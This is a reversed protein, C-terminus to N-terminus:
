SQKERLPIGSKDFNKRLAAETLVISLFLAALQLAELILSVAAPHRYFLLSVGLSLLLLLSGIIRMSRAFYQQAFEWAAQTSQARATRYGYVANPKKPPHRRFLLGIGLLLLPLLCSMSILFATLHM